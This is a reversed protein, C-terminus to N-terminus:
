KTKFMEKILVPMFDDIAPYKNRDKEYEELKVYIQRVTKFGAKTEPDIIDMVARDEGFEKKYLRAEVARVFNEDTVRNWPFSKAAYMSSTYQTKDKGKTLDTILANNNQVPTNMYNHLYEHVSTKIINNMSFESTKRSGKYPFQISALTLNDENDLSAFSGNTRYFSLVTCYSVNKGTFYTNKNGAYSEVENILKFMSSQKINETIYANLAQYSSSNNDFFTEAKTDTYFAKLSNLFEAAEKEDSLYKQPNDYIKNLQPLDSYNLLFALYSSNVDTGNMYKAFGKIFAHNKYPSFYEKANKYIPREEVYPLLYPNNFDTYLGAAILFIDINRSTYVMYSPDTNSYILNAPTYGKQNESASTNTSVPNTKDTELLPKLAVLGLILLLILGLYIPRNRM